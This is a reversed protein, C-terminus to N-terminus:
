DPLDASATCSLSGNLSPGCAMGMAAIREVATAIHPTTFLRAKRENWSRVGHEVAAVDSGAGERESVWHVTALLEMGYPTEFGEIAERVREVRYLTAEDDALQHDTLERGIALVEVSAEKSRDGYGRIFHGEMRQLVFNLNEAYPGYKQKVFDLRLPQGALQLFYALKQIELLTLRYGAHGYDMMAAVLAARNANMAPAATAVPMEDVPPAGDPGYIIVRLDPVAALAQEIRPRVERWDLGGNGCGLPPLALSRVGEARIVQVLDQLGADIDEIRSKGKWHRKTPFNIIWRPSELRRTVFMRGPVVEKRRCASEYEQFNQPFAQKFQLAIGKGMVGVTNVTNVLADVPAELLNGKAYEIM